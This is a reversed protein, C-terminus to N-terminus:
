GLVWNKAFVNLIESNNEKDSVRNIMEFELDFLEIELKPILEYM